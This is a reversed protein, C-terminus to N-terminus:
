LSTAVDRAHGPSEGTPGNSHIASEGGLFAEVDRDFFGRSHRVFERRSLGLWM